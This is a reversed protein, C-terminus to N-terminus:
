KAEMRIVLEQLTKTNENVADALKGISDLSKEHSDNEKDYIYKFAVLLVVLVVFFAVIPFGLTSVLTAITDPNMNEM